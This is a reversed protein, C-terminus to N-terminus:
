SKKRKRAGSVQEYPLQIGRYSSTYIRNPLGLETLDSIKLGLQVRRQKQSDIKVDISAIGCDHEAKIEARRQKYIPRAELQAEKGQPVSKVWEVFPLILEATLERFLRHYFEPSFDFERIQYYHKTQPDVQQWEGVIMTFERTACHSLFRVIDGCGIGDSGTTKISGNFGALVQEHLDFASTYGDPIQQDYDRKPIGTVSRIVTDEFLIGHSQSEAM